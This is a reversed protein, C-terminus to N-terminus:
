YQGFSAAPPREHWFRNFIGGYEFLLTARRNGPRFNLLCKRRNPLADWKAGALLNLHQKFEQHIFGQRAPSLRQLFPHDGGGHGHGLHIGHDFHLHPLHLHVSGALLSLVSMGFGVLFCILYFSSWTM